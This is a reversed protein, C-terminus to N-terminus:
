QLMELSQPTTLGEWVALRIRGFPRAYNTKTFEGTPHLMDIETKNKCRSAIVRKVHNKSIAKLWDTRLHGEADVFYFKWRRVNM